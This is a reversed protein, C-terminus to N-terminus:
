IVSIIEFQTERVVFGPVPKFWDDTAPASAIATGKFVIDAEATLKALPAAPGVLYGWATGACALLVTVIAVGFWAFTKKM